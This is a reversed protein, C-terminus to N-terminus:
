SQAAAFFAKTAEHNPGYISPVVLGAQRMLVSIQGRHHVEHSLILGLMMGKNMEMQGFVNHVEQLDEPSLNATQARAKATVDNHIQVFQACNIGAPAHHEFEPMEIGIERLLYTPSIAVHYCLDGLNSEGAIHETGLAGDTVAALVRSTIESEMAYHGLFHEIKSIM